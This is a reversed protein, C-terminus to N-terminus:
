GKTPGRSCAPIEVAFGDGLVRRRKVVVRGADMNVRADADEALDEAAM